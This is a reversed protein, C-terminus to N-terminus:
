APGQGQKSENKVRKDPQEKKGELQDADRDVRHEVEELGDDGKGGPNEAAGESGDM